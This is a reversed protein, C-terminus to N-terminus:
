PQLVVGSEELALAAAGVMGAENGFRAFYPTSGVIDSFVLAVHREYKKSILASLEAQLRIAETLTLTELDIM